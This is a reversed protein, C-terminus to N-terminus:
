MRSSTVLVLVLAPKAEASEDRGRGRVQEERLHPMTYMSGPSNPQRGHTFDHICRSAPLSLSSVLALVLFMFHSSMNCCFLVCRLVACCLLVCCFVDCCVAVCCLVTCVTRYLVHSVM